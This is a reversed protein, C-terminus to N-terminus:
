EEITSVLRCLFIFSFIQDTKKEEGRFIFTYTKKRTTSGSKTECYPFSSNKEFLKLQSLKLSTMNEGNGLKDGFLIIYNLQAIHM